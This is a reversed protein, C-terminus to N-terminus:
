FLRSTLMQAVQQFIKKQDYWLTKLSLPMSVQESAQSQKPLPLHIQCHLQVFAEEGYEEIGTISYTGDHRCHCFAAWRKTTYSEATKSSYDTAKCIADILVKRSPFTQKAQESTLLFQYARRAQAYLDRM